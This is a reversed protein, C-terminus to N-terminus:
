YRFIATVPAAMPIDVQSITYVAGGKGLTYVAALNLLDEDGPGKQENIVARNEEPEFAGWITFEPSLFLVEVGGAFAKPLIERLDTSTLESGGLKECRALAEERDRQLYPEVIPWARRHLEEPSIEDPNGEIGQDIIGQYSSATKFIPWLYNVGALVMPASQEHLVSQLGNDVQQFFRLIEDKSDDIGVGQGHFIAARRNGAGQARTHFQLQSQPEDYKLAEALSRPVTEVEVERVQQRTCRLLRIDNQSLALIYFKEEGTLFSLLPRVHFRGGAVIIEELEVPLRYFRFSDRTLFVALGNSQNSWFAHDALLERAPALILDIESEESNTQKGIRVANELLNRFRIQNQQVERGARYTPMYISIAVGEQPETLRQLEDKTFIDM